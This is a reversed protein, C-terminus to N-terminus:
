LRAGPVMSVMQQGNPGLFPQPLWQGPPGGMVGPPLGGMQPGGLHPPAGASGPSLPGMGASTALHAGPHHQLHPAQMHMGGPGEHGGLKALAGPPLRPLPMLQPPGHYHAHQQAAAVAAAERADGGSHEGSRPLRHAGPSSHAGEHPGREAAGPEFKRRQGGAHHLFGCYDYM